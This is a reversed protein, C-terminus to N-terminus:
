PRDLKFGCAEYVKLTERHIMDRFGRLVAIEAAVHLAEEMSLVVVQEGEHWPGAQAIFHQYEPEGNRDREVTGSVGNAKLLHIPDKM